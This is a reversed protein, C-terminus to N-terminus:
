PTPNAQAIVRVPRYAKVTSSSLETVVMSWGKDTRLYRDGEADQIMTGLPSADMEAVSLDEASM